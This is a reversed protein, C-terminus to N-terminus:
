LEVFDRVVERPCPGALGDVRLSDCGAGVEGDARRRLGRRGGACATFRRLPPPREPWRASRHPRASEWCRWRGVAQRWPSGEDGWGSPASSAPGLRARAVVRALVTRLELLAFSAGLCRRVGGGFPLFTYTGPASDLFREPRFSAPEPYIEARRHLLYVCPAVVTGARLRWRGLTMPATLKRMVIPVVPRLRLAEHVVADPYADDGAAVAAELRALAAPHRFLLEFTWALATATTEHGAVLLTMLEDRLERDSLAEGDEHRAEILLSLM